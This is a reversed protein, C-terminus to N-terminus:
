WAGKGDKGPTGDKGDAGKTGPTGAKGDRGVKVALRWARSAESAEGPRAKTDSQAIWFSGGHSVGDGTLYLTDPKFVGRDVIGPVRFSKVDEGRVFQMSLRGFEDHAESLDDFGFGDRGDKPRPIKAVEERILDAVQQQDVDKGVVVGLAKVSGDSLTLVLQGSRDILAGAIGVPDKPPPIANMAKEVEAAILPTVDEVTIDKPTPLAEVARRVESSIFPQVDDVTVSLGDKPVPIAGVAKTIEDAILPQVDELTVAKAVPIAAVASAVSADVLAQIDPLIADKGDRPVPMQKMHEALVDAINPQAKVLEAMEARLVSIEAMLQSVTAMDTKVAVNGVLQWTM